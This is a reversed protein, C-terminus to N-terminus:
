KEIYFKVRKTKKKLNHKLIIHHIDLENCDIKQYIQKYEDDEIKGNKNILNLIESELAKNTKMNKIDRLSIWKNDHNTLMVPEIDNEYAYKTLLDFNKLVSYTTMENLTKVEILAKHNHYTLILFDPIYHRDGYKGKLLDVPQEVIDKIYEFEELDDILKEELSSEYEIEKNQDTITSITKKGKESYADSNMPTRQKFHDYIADIQNTENFYNPLGIIENFVLRNQAYNRTLKKFYIKNSTSILRTVLASNILNEMIDDFQTSNMEPAKSYSLSDKFLDSVPGNKGKLVSNMSKVYAKVQKKEM